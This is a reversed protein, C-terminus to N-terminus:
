QKVLFDQGLFVDGILDDLVAAKFSVVPDVIRAQFKSFETIEQTRGDAIHVIEPEETFRRGFKKAV